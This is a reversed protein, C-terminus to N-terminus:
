IVQPTLRSEIGRVVVDVGFAFHADARSNTGHDGADDDISSPAAQEQLVFGIVFGLLARWAAAADEVGIGVDVLLQVPQAIAARGLEPNAFTRAFLRAGDRHALIERRMTFASERLCCVWADGFDDWDAAAVLDALLTAAMEDLLDDKSRFHWFLAPPKVDLDAALRRVTLRDLGVEPLLDLARRVVRGRDLRERM